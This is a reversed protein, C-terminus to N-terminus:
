KHIPLFCHDRGEFLRVCASSSLLGRLLITFYERLPGGGDVAPEREFTIKIPKSFDFNREKFFPISDEFISERAFCLRKPVKSTPRLSRLVDDLSNVIGITSESNDGLDFFVCLIYVFACM